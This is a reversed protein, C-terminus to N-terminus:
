PLRTGRDVAPSTDEGEEVTGQDSMWEVVAADFVDAGIRVFTRIFRERDVAISYAWGRLDEESWQCRVEAPQSQVRDWLYKLKKVDEKIGIHTSWSQPRGAWRRTRPQQYDQSRVLLAWALVTVM